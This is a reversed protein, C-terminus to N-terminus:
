RTGLYEEILAREEPAFWDHQESLMERAYADLAAGRKDLVHLIAPPQCFLDKRNKYLVRFLIRWIDKGAIVFGFKEMRERETLYFQGVLEARFVIEEGDETIAFWKRLSLDFYARDKRKLGFEGSVLKEFRAVVVTKSMGDPDHKGPAHAFVVRREFRSFRERDTPVDGCAIATLRLRGGLIFRIFERSMTGKRERYFDGDVIRWKAWFSFGAM